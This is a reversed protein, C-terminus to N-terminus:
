SSPRGKPHVFEPARISIFVARKWADAGALRACHRRHHIVLRPHAGELRFGARWGFASAILKWPVPMVAGM